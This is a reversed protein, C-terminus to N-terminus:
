IEFRPQRRARMEEIERRQTEYGARGLLAYARIKGEEVGPQDFADINHLEGSFATAVELLYILQGMTFANVEPLRFAANPQGAGALALATGEAEASLLENFSRGGLYDVASQGAQWQPITLEHAFRDVTVFTFVKDHPGEMYLQCQSHQDTVGLAKVPTPGVHVERGDRGTKKGLSEAWLQAFWDAMSRLTQAYPMMVSIRQGRLYSLYQTLAFMLPVNQWLYPTRSIRDAYAAGALLEPVDIGVAAAPLLGVSSLVSFRGGVGDPVVFSQYGEQTALARLSGRTEDTTAIVQRAYRDPGLKELLLQRTWLMQSMTEATSGSKTIVNFCTEAPDLVDLLALLWDPDINDLVYLRPGNRQADSLQNYYPHLLANQLAITGLASGGIGLVVLNRYRARISQGTSLIGAVDQYPLELWRLGGASRAAEVAALAQRAQEAHADLTSTSFGLREGVMDAMLHNFDFRVRMQAQWGPDEYSKM